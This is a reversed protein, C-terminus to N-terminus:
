YGGIKLSPDGFLIWEQVTKCDVLTPYNEHDDWNMTWDIPFTNLYDILTTTHTEGLIDRSQNNYVHYFRGQIWGGLYQICDPIGDPTSSPVEDPPVPGDGITGYGLGTSGISAISGGNPASAFLWSWCKTTAEGWMRARTNFIKLISVDFQSNHCGGVIMIPLKNTNALNKIRNMNFGVWTSFDAHPHTSWVSPNGHGSFLVFGHGQDLVSSINDGTLQVDGGEVWIRTTNFGDMFSMAHETELQGEIFDTSTPWSIDDFSDGGIGVMSNFWPEGATTTEYSIIRNVLTPIEFFYRCPIRGLYVDPYMDLIDKNDTNWEAFVNNQNSDWDDFEYGTVNDYKYIDAYYLDSIYHTEFNSADDLNSYRIPIHYSWFRQGKMGGFLLIYRVGNEEIATQIYKKIKEADDRGSFESYIEQTTKVTTNIGIDNKHNVLPELFRTFFQPTIIVMDIDDGTIFPQSPSEYTISLDLSSWYKIQQNGPSYRVPFIQITLYVVHTDKQLGIGKHTTHWSEPYLETQAYIKIDKKIPQNQIVLQKDRIQPKQSFIIDSSIKQTIVNNATTAVDIIRTGIPFTYTKTIVPLIPHGPNLTYTTATDVAVSTQIKSETIIPTDITITETLVAPTESTATIGFGSLTLIGIFLICLIKKM